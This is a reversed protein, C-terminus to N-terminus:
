LKLADNQEFEFEPFMHHAIACAMELGARPSLGLPSYGLQRAAPDGFLAAIATPRDTNSLLPSIIEYTYELDDAELTPPPSKAFRMALSEQALMQGLTHATGHQQIHAARFISLAIEDRVHEPSYTESTWLVGTIWGRNHFGVEHFRHVFESAFRDTWGGKLDDSVVLCVKFIGPEDHLANAATVTAEAAVDDANFSILQDLFVPLHEKGMPNMAVLPLKLDQEVPDVMTRLYERFRSMGRPMSYLDRQVQLLPVYDLLM